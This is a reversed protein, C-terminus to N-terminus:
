SAVIAKRPEAPDVTAKLKNIMDQSATAQNNSLAKVMNDRVTPQAVRSSAMAKDVKTSSSAAAMYEGRRAKTVKVM